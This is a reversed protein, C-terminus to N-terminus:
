LHLTEGDWTGQKSRCFSHFHCRAVESDPGWPAELHRSARTKRGDGHSCARALRGSAMALRPWGVGLLHTLEFLILLTVQIVWLQGGCSLCVDSNRISCLVGQKSPLLYSLCNDQSSEQVHHLMSIVSKLVNFIIGLISTEKFIM